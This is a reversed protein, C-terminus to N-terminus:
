RAPQRAPPFTAFFPDIASSQSNLTMAEPVM